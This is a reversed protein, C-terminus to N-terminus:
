AQVGSRAIQDALEQARVRCHGQAHILAFIVQEMDCPLADALLMILVRELGAQDHLADAIEESRDFVFQPLIFM